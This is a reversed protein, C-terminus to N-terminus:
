AAVPLAGPIPCGRACREPCQRGDPDRVLGEGLCLPCRRSPAPTPERLALPHNVYLVVARHACVPDNGLMAAECECSFGDSRYVTGGRTASTVVFEGSGAIRLPEIGSAIARRLAAQWREPTAPRPGSIAAVPRTITTVM